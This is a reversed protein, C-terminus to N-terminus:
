NFLLLTQLELPTSQSPAVTPRLDTTWFQNNWTASNNSQSDEWIQWTTNLHGLTIFASSVHRERSSALSVQLGFAKTKQHILNSMKVWLNNQMLVRRDQDGFQKRLIASLKKGPSKSLIHELGGTVDSLKIQALSIEMHVRGLWQTQSRQSM